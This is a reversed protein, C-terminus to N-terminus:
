ATREWMYVVITPQINNHSGGGGTNSMTTTPYSNNWYYASTRYGYPTYISGDNATQDGFWAPRRFDHNHAPMEATVLTHTEAGVLAGITSFTGTAAKGVLVRKEMAVWTGFGLVVAPSTPDNTSTYISGIRWVSELMTDIRNKLYQLDEAFITTLKTGDFPMNPLNQLSSIHTDIQADTAM